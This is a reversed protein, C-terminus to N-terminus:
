SYLIFIFDIRHRQLKANHQNIIVIFLYTHLIQDPYTIAAAAATNQVCGCTISSLYPSINLNFENQSKLVM